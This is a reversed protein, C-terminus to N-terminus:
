KNGTGKIIIYSVLAVFGIASMILFFDDQWKIYIVSYIVLAIALSSLIIKIKIQSM